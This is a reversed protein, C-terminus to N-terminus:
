SGHRFGRVEGGALLAVRMRESARMLSTAISIRIPPAEPRAVVAM